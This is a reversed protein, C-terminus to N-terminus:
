AVHDREMGMIIGCSPGSNMVTEDDEAQPVRL